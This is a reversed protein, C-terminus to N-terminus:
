YLGSPRSFYVKENKEDVHEFPFATKTEIRKPITNNEICDSHLLEEGRDNYVELGISNNPYRCIKLTYVDEDYWLYRLEKLQYHLRRANPYSHYYERVYQQAINKAEEHQQTYSYM